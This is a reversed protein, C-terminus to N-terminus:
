AAAVAAAPVKGLGRGQSNLPHHSWWVYMMLQTNYHYSYLYLNSSLRPLLFILFIILLVYFSCILLLDNCWIVLQLLIKM